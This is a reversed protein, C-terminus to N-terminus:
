QLRTHVVYNRFRLNRFRLMKGQVLSETLSTNFLINIPEYLMPLNLISNEQPVMESFLKKIFHYAKASAKSLSFIM